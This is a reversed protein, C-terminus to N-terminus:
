RSPETLPKTHQMQGQFFRIMDVMALALLTSSKAIDMDGQLLVRSHWRLFLKTRLTGFDQINNKLSTLSKEADDLVVLFKDHQSQMWTTRLTYQVAALDSHSSNIATKVDKFNSGFEESAFRSAFDELVQLTDGLSEVLGSVIGIVSGIEM